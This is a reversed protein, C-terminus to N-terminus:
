FNFDGIGENEKFELIRKKRIKKLKKKIIIDKIEEIFM